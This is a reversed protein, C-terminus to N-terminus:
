KGNSDWPGAPRSLIINEAVLAVPRGSADRLWIDQAAM